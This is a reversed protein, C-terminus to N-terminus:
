GPHLLTCSLVTSLVLELVAKHDSESELHLAYQATLNTRLGSVTVHIVPRGCPRQWFIAWEYNRDVILRYRVLLILTLCFLVTNARLYTLFLPYLLGVVPRSLVQPNWSTSTGLNWSLRCMFTTLNDARLVPRRKGWSINRTSMETLPQTLGLAMTRGSPNHWSFNWYCWQSDFGRGESKYRLAEVIHLSIRCSTFDISSYVPFCIVSLYIAPNVSSHPSSIFCPLKDTPPLLASMRVAVLQTVGSAKECRCLTHTPILYTSIETCCLRDPKKFLHWLILPYSLEQM